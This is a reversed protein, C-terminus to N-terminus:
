THPICFRDFFSLWSTLRSLLLHCKGMIVFLVTLMAFGMLQIPKRGWSDILASAVYYGPIAGSISIIMSEICINRLYMYNGWAGHTSADGFGIAEVIISNNLDLGYFAFQCFLLLDRIGQLCIFSQFFNSVDIAFWSYSAALLVKGNDWKMFYACFDNWSPRPAQVRQVVADEDTFFTGTTLINDIDASAQQINREVDMTYRPTEPITLRFYLAICGPICGLGVLIRWVYDVHPMNGAGADSLISTKFSVILIFAM